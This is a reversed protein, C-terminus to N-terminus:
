LIWMKAFNRSKMFIHYVCKQLQYEKLFFAEEILIHVWILVQLNTVYKPLLLNFFFFFIKSKIHWKLYNADSYNRNCIPCPHNPKPSKVKSVKKKIVRVFSQDAFAEFDELLITDFNMKDSKERQKKCTKTITEESCALLKRLERERSSRPM